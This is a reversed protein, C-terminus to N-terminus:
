ELENEKGCSSPPAAGPLEIKRIRGRITVASDFIVCGMGIILTLYYTFFRWLLLAGFLKDSPFVSQFILYFGGEQAGTSGPLPTFSAGLYLLMQLTLIHWYSQETLGMARYVCYAVSMLGLVQICSLLFLWLLELPHHTLMYVSSHFDELAGEARSSATPLDRVIHLAKGLRLLFTIIARVINKNIALLFVLAVALGNLLFGIYVFWRSAGICESVFGPFILWLGAGLLLLAMQFCFFKVALGSTTIGSPVGRKKMAFVQMPQGGTAAPTVNSYFMGIVSVLFSSGFRVPVHQMRYFVHLVLTEFLAFMLWSAGAACVWWPNASRLADWADSINGSRAGLYFVILITFVILLANLLKSRTQKTMKKM